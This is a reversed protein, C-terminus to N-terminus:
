LFPITLKSELPNHHIDTPVITILFLIVKADSKAHIARHVEPKLETRYWSITADPHPVKSTAPGLTDTNVM